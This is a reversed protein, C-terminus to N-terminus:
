KLGVVNHARVSGHFGKLTMAGLPELAAVTEVEASQVSRLIKSREKMVEQTWRTTAFCAKPM